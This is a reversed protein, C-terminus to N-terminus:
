ITLHSRRGGLEPFVDKILAAPVWLLGFPGTNRTDWDAPAGGGLGRSLGSKRRFKFGLRARQAELDMIEQGASINPGSGTIWRAQDQGVQRTYLM